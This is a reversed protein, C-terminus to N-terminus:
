GVSCHLECPRTPNTQFVKTGDNLRVVVCDDSDPDSPVAVRSITNPDWDECPCKDTNLQIDRMTDCMVKLYSFPNGGPDSPNSDYERLAMYTGGCVLNRVRVCRPDMVPCMLDYESEPRGANDWAKFKNHCDATGWEGIAANCIFNDELEKCYDINVQFTNFWNPYLCNTSVRADLAVEVDIGSRTCGANPRETIVQSRILQPQLGCTKYQEQDGLTGCGYYTELVRWCEIDIPVGNWTVRLMGYIGAQISEDNIFAECETKMVDIWINQGTRTVEKCRNDPRGDICSKFYEEYSYQYYEHTHHTQIHTHAHSNM